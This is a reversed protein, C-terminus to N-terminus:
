DSILSKHLLSLATRAHRRDIVMSICTKSPQRAIAIANIGNSALIGHLRRTMDTLGMDSGVVAVTALAPEIHAEIGAAALAEVSTQVAADRIGYCPSGEPTSALYLEIGCQSLADGAAEVRGSDDIIILSTDSLTTVGKIGDAEDRRGTPEAIRTGGFEPNFTNRIYIPINKHFVPYITPPYVVKAGFNCLDMAEVYSMNDLVRADPIIRPDATLFGDVDTWIELVRANLAAALIAATFDSGGRGLNTTKGSDIDTSIFGPVVAVSGEWGDFAELILARTAEDALLNRGHWSSTKILKLSDFREAGNIMATVINSSCREGVAVVRALAEDTVEGARAIAHYETELEGLISDVIETVGCHREDPVMADIIDHHRKVMADYRTAINEGAAAMNATAILNDTLGGLASVVVIIQEGAAGEVIQRVNTLSNVTGVSTGGFKLVKM